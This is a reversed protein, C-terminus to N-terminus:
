EECCVFYFKFVMSREREEMAATDVHAHNICIPEEEGVVAESSCDEAENGCWMTVWRMFMGMLNAYEASVPLQHNM